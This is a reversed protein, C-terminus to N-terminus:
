GQDEVADRLLEVALRQRGVAEDLAVAGSAVALTEVGLRDGEVGLRDVIRRAIWGPRAANRDEVRRDFSEREGQAARSILLEILGGAPTSSLRRDPLEGNAHDKVVACM